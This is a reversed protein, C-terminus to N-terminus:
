FRQDCTAAIIFPAVDEPRGREVWERHVRVSEAGGWADCWGGRAMASWLARFEDDRIQEAEIGEGVVAPVISGDGLVPPGSNDTVVAEAAVLEASIRGWLATTNFTVERLWQEFREIRDPTGVLELPELAQLFQRVGIVYYRVVAEEIM